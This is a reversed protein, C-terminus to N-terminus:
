AAVEVPNTSEVVDRFVEDLSAHRARLGHLRLEQARAWALVRELDSQLDDTAIGVYGDAYSTLDVDGLLGPPTPPVPPVTGGPTAVRFDIRARYRGLVDALSGEVAIRGEHMIALRHALREAEELYHTTLVVTTGEALLEEVLEWTTQRSEPDLGTTPEDLFLVEPGGLAALVLDLRRQEGGSLQKVRVGARHALGLREFLEDVDSKRSVVGSWMRATERVTLDGAFGGSQLMIGCRAHVFARDRYPDRGLVRVTGSTPPRHGELTEMTTTKGAGNTGLLAFMEGQRVSFEVDRVAVFDGYACRLGEAAVVVDNM